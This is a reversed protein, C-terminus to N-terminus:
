QPPNDPPNQQEKKKHRPPTGNEPNGNASPAAGGSPPQGRAGNPQENGGPSTQAGPQERRTRESNPGTTDSPQENGNPRTQAGPQQRRTRESNPGTMGNPQENGGPSTQAGPQEVRTRESNPGTTGNPQENGNPGIQAGPQQRPTRENNPGTMGNPQENGNPGTQAGPQQRRTRETNPGTMGNPQENGNPGTQAGPQQRRTRESNPGTMGNPQENGNPGTQAGPQERRMRESNPGTTGNRENARTPEGNPGTMAGGGAAPERIPTGRFRSQAEPATITARTFLHVPARGNRPAVNVSLKAVVRPPPPPASNAIGRGHPVIERMRIQVRQGVDIRAVLNPRRIVTAARVVPIPHGAAREVVRVDVSRNVVINNIVTYNTVNRTQHIINVIRVPDRIVVRQYDPVAIFGAPLFVWNAAFRRENFTPGYWRSYLAGVDFGGFRFSVGIDGRGELFADDPPLPTWGIYAGNSRWAVWGPSWIYGPIWLWGDDPDNVWRGYHFSIDGWSYKSLWYWGYDDTYVWHGATYYPRFDYPVEAPQWVVGWRDSYLWYGYPALQDHFSDFSIADEVDGMQDMQACVPVTACALAGTIIASSLLSAQLIRRM